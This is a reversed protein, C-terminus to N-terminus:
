AFHFRTVVLTRKSTIVQLAMQTAIVEHLGYLNKTDYFRGEKTWALMCLTKSSLANNSGYLYVAYTEYGPMDYSSDKGSLPCMLPELNPHDTNNFYWPTTEGTGFSSPENMDIWIGDFNVEHHFRKIEEMWWMITMADSFDPFSVHKDPWAVGLMIPVGQLLRLVYSILKTDKALPYLDQISHPVQDGREWEVFKADSYLGRQFPKGDVQVAPDFILVIHMNESHIQEVYNPLHEWGVDLPIQADRIENIVAKMEDVNKYGNRSFQFGLGWYPPLMPYGVFALYSNKSSKKDDGKQANSNLILVGHANYDSEIGLYFPYVGYLNHTNPFVGHVPKSDIHQDRAFLPWTIYYELNHQFHELSLSVKFCRERLLVKSVSIKKVSLKVGLNFCVTQSLTSNLDHLLECPALVSFDFIERLNSSGIFAAIQIYQDAFMLGRVRLCVYRSHFPLVIICLGAGTANSQQIIFGEGTNFSGRPILLRPEYRLVIGCLSNFVTAVKAVEKDASGDVGIRVNLTTGEITETSFYIPSINEGYPSRVTPLKRLTVTSSNTAMQVYGSQVPYYCAPANTEIAYMDFLCGFSHCHNMEPNGMATINHNIKEKSNEESFVVSNTWIILIVPDATINILNSCNILIMSSEMNFSSCGSIPLPVGNITTKDLHPIFPYGFIDIKDLTPVGNFEWKYYTDNQIDSEGDDWYLNGKSPLNPNKDIAILLELPNRRSATTTMAPAQRPIVYGGRAFIPIMKNIPASLFQFGSTM